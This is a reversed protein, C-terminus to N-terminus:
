SKEGHDASTLATRGADTIRVAIAKSGHVNRVWHVLDKRILWSVRVADRRADTYLLKLAPVSIEGGEKVLTALVKTELTEM